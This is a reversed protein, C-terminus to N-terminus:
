AVQKRNSEETGTLPINASAVASMEAAKESAEAAEVLEIPMASRPIKPLGPRQLYSAYRQQIRTLFPSLLRGKRLDKLDTWKRQYVDKFKFSVSHGDLMAFVIAEDDRESFSGRTVDM